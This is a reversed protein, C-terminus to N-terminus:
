DTFQFEVIGTKLLTSSLNIRYIKEKTTIILYGTNPPINGLNIAVLSLKNFEIEKDLNIYVTYPTERLKLNQVILKENLYLSISDGDVVGSDFIEVKISDAIDKSIDIVKQVDNIRKNPIQINNMKEYTLKLDPCKFLGKKKDKWIGSLLISSDTPSIKLKSKGLCIEDSIFKKYSILSDEIITLTSDIKNLYAIVKIHEYLKQKYILHLVGIFMSDNYEELELQITQPHAVIIKKESWGKWVGNLNQAPLNFIAMQVIIFVVLKKM